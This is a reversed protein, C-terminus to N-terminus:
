EPLIGRMNGDDAYSAEGDVYRRIYKINMGDFATTLNNTINGLLFAGGSSAEVHYTCNNDLLMSGIVSIYAGDTLIASRGLSNFVSSQVSVTGSRVFIGDTVEGSGLLNYVNVKGRNGYFTTIHYANTSFIKPRSVVNILSAYPYKSIAATAYVDRSFVNLACFVPDLPVIPVEPAEINLVYDATKASVNRFVTSEGGIIHIGSYHSQLYTILEDSTAFEDSFSINEAYVDACSDLKVGNVMTTGRIKELIVSTCETLSIGYAPRVICVDRIMVNKRNAAYVAVGAPAEEASLDPMRYYYFTVGCIETSDELTFYASADGANKETIFVTSIIPDTGAGAGMVRVGEKVTVENSLRYQGAPIFVTGGGNMYAYNIASQVANYNDANSESLGYDKAYFIRDKIEPAVAFSGVYKKEIVDFDYENETSIVFLASEEESEGSALSCSALMGVSKESLSVPEKGANFSTNAATFIIDSVSLAANRWGVFKCNVFSLRGRGESKVSYSPQGPFTCTNFTIASDFASSIKVASSNLLNSTGFTCLAFAAGCGPINAISVPTFTNSVNLLSILPSKDSEGTIDIHLGVHATDISIDTLSMDCPCQLMIATLKEYIANNLASIDFNEPKVTMEDNIWYVPSVSLGSVTLKQSCNLVRLANNFSTIYVNEVLFTECDSSDATIGNYANLIAINTVAASKGSAHRITYAYKSLDEFSQEEYWVTLDSVSSNDHLIFLSADRLMDSGEVVIVTGESVGKKSTPSVFDGILSVNDPINLPRSVRYKGKAIYVKGGGAAAAKDLAAQIAFSDDYVGDAAAGSLSVFYNVANYESERYLSKVASWEGNVFTKPEEAPREPTQPKNDNRRYPACASLLLLFALAVLVFKKM